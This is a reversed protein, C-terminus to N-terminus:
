EDEVEIGRLKLYERALTVFGRGTREGPMPYKANELARKAVDVALISPDIRTEIDYVLARIDRSGNYGGHKQNLRDIVAEAKRAEAEDKRLEVLEAELQERTKEDSM